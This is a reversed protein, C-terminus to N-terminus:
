RMRAACSPSRVAARCRASACSVLSGANAGSGNVAWYWTRDRGDFDALTLPQNALQFSVYVAGVSTITMAIMFSILIKWFLSM